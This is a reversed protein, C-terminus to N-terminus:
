TQRGGVAVQLRRLMRSVRTRAALPSCSLMEAIERYPREEIVRLRLLRREASPLDAVARAVADPLSLRSEVAEYGPEPAAEIPLGLRARASTEIRQKRLSDRLVNLAIGLLWPLASGDKQDRFRRRHHWARAFTEATLDAAYEGARARAWALVVAAHRDYIIAFADADQARLLEADSADDAIRRM